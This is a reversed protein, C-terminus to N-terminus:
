FVPGPIAPCPLHFPTANRAVTRATDNISVPHNGSAGAQTRQEWDAPNELKIKTLLTFLSTDKKEDKKTMATRPRSVVPKVFRNLSEQARKQEEELEKATMKSRLGKKFEQERRQLYLTSKAERTQPIGIGEDPTLCDPNSDNKGPLLYVRQGAYFIAKRRSEDRDIETKKQRVEQAGTLSSM